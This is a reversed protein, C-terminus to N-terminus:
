PEPRPHNHTHLERKVSAHPNHTHTSHMFPILFALTVLVVKVLRNTQNLCEGGRGGVILHARQELPPRQKNTARHAVGSALTHKDSEM